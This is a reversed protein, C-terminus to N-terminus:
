CAEPSFYAPSGANDGLKDNIMGRFSRSIGFDALRINDDSDILINEPKIDRHLINVVEHCYWVASLLQRFYKRLDMELLPIKDTKDIRKQLNGGKMFEQILYM